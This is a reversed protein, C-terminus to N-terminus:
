ATAGVLQCAYKMGDVATKGYFDCGTNQKLLESAAAGGLMIKVQDRLGAARLAEVTKSVSPFCTTLLISMGVVHPQHQRVAEVFKEPPVDVGLDVVEFGVGRLMMVVIDKGIDHVDHQVTGIVAKGVPPGLQQQSLHPGLEALIEKMIMGGFMLEPLFCEGQAFRDGLLTMGRNCEAVIVPAPIGAALQDRVMQLAVDRQCNALAEALSRTSSM